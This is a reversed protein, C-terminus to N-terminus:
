CLLQVFWCDLELNLNQFNNVKQTKEQLQVYWLHHRQGDHQKTDTIYTTCRDLVLASPAMEFLACEPSIFDFFSHAESIESNDYQGFMSRTYM